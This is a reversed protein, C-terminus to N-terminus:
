GARESPTVAVREVLDVERTEPGMWAGLLTCLGAIATLVLPTFEFPMLKGLGLMFFSYFSPVVVALSYGVGYGSARVGTSFRENIYSTVMGWSCMNFVLSVTGWIMTVVLSGGARANLALLAYSLTGLVLMWAGAVMFMRRRGFRQGLIACGVFAGALVINGVLLGYTVGRAPEHFYNQLLGPVAASAAQVALWQGSMLVFIQILTRLNDGRFLQKLPAQVPRERVAEQWAKSEEVRRYYLLFVAGLVGGFLFPIRWGWQVYPSDVDGARFIALLIVVTLSIAVFAIPYSSQILGAVLGRLRKPCAEMALPNAASYEGGMFIGDILRLLTLAVIAGYGWAAYGPLLAILFTVVAFGGVAILTARRRGIVDGLHGFLISGIPRGVLTVAFVIYGLTAVVSPSLHKPQFYIIAPTLAVTPLYIDYFDVFFGLFAGWVARRAEPTLTDADDVMGADTM